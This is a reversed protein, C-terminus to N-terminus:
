KWVAENGPLISPMSWSKLGSLGMTRGMEGMDIRLSERGIDGKANLELWVLGAGEGEGEGLGSCGRGDVGGM